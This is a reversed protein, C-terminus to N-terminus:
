QIPQLSSGMFKLGRIKRNRAEGKGIGRVHEHEHNQIVEAQQTCLKTTYFWISIFSQFGNAFQLGIHVKFFKWHHPSGQGAPLTTEPIHRGCIEPHHLYSDNSILYATLYYM